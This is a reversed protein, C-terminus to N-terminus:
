SAQRGFRTSWSGTQDTWTGVLSDAFWRGVFSAAPLTGRILNLSFTSDSESYTGLLTFSGLYASAIGYEQATGALKGQGSQLSLLTYAGSPTIPLNIWSATLPGGRPPATTESCAATLLVIFSLCRLTNM